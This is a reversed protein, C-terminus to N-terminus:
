HSSNLRTSKRDGFDISVVDGNEIKRDNPIGHVIEDNVSACIVAPYGHYNLFNPKANRKKLNKVAIENLHNTTVGPEIAAKILELTEAVVLGAKRMLKLQELNKIGIAM